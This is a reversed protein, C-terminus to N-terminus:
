SFVTHTHTTAYQHILKENFIALLQLTQILKSINLIIELKPANLNM